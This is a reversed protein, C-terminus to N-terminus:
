SSSWEVNLPASQPDTSKNWQIIVDAKGERASDGLRQPNGIKLRGYPRSTRANM